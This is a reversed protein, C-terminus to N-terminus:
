GSTSPVVDERLSDNDISGLSRNEELDSHVGVPDIETNDATNSDMTCSRMSDDHHMDVDCVVSEVTSDDVGAVVTSDDVGAVVTSDDVGAVVTSDDVGAVVTSDDVGAVVTSDDVGAVVTSDDVGAVVTSDDVGAVVTSDDVGAVVTSDDVGAVVTSDDVGAVVTSDDMTGDDVPVMQVDTCDGGPLDDNNSDDQVAQPPSLLSVAEHLKESSLYEPIRWYVEQM